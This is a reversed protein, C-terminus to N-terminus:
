DYPFVNYGFNIYITIIEPFTTIEIMDEELNTIEGTIITPIEGGFHIDIWTKPLLNNQRAYGKENSKCLVHIETISEDSFKGDDTINLVHTRTTITNIVTIKDNDIYTIVGTMEHIDTNSPAVLEIIDGLELQISNNSTNEMIPTDIKTDSTQTTEM